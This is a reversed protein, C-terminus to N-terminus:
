RGRRPKETAPRKAKRLVLTQSYTRAKSGHTRLLITMTVRLTKVHKLDRRGVKTLPIRLTRTTDAPLSFALRGLTPGSARASRGSAHLAAAKGGTPKLVITGTCRARCKLITIASTGQVVAYSPLLVPLSNTTECNSSCASSPGGGGSPAPTAGGGGAVGGPGPRGEGLVTDASVEAVSTSGDAQFIAYSPGGLGGGGGSGAGGAGGAGGNGGAGIEESAYSDGKGGAGGAGGNGGTGGNGGAGGEGPTITSGLEVAVSSAGDLYIGFSGGGGQGGTGGGGGAGGAGGGGGGDGGGEVVGTDEGSGGGGGGGGGGPLGAAGPSAAGPEYSAGATAASSPENAGTSSNAAGAAGATGPAGDGGGHACCGTSRYAGPKGGAGGNAESATSRPLFGKSGPEGEYTSEALFIEGPGAKGASDTEGCQAQYEPSGASPSCTYKAAPGYIGNQDYSPTSRDHGTGGFGGDGPSAETPNAAPPRSVGDYFGGIYQEVLTANRNGNPAVGGAGGPGASSAGFHELANGPTEGREGAGGSGGAAGETGKVGNAGAEGYGARIAVDALTASSDELMRVGYASGGPGSARDSEIQLQQLLINRSGDLLIGQTEGLIVTPQAPEAVPTWNSADLDGYIAIDELRGLTVNGGYEGEGLLIQSVPQAGREHEHESAISVARSLTGIPEGPSTGANGDNGIESSVYLRLTGAPPSPPGLAVLATAEESKGVDAIVCPNAATGKCPGSAWEHLQVSATQQVALEVTDGETVECSGKSCSSSPNSDTASVSLEAPDSVGAIKYRPGFDATVTHGESVNPLQCPSQQTLCAAGSWGKFGYGSSAIAELTVEAGRGVTCQAGSCVTHFSATSSATARVTGDASPSSSASVVFSNGPESAAWEYAGSACPENRLYGRQDVAACHSGAAIAHSLGELEVTPTAGGNAALQPQGGTEVLFPNTSQKDGTAELACSADDAVNGGQSTPAMGACDGGTNDALIDNTLTSVGVSGGELSALGGGGNAGASDGAVTSSELTLTTGDFIGGGQRDSGGTVSNGVVTSNVITMSRSAGGANDSAVGGGVGIGGTVTNSAITSDEVTLQGDDQVGGGSSAATNATIVDEDLTLEGNQEVLIGGGEGEVSSNAGTGDGGTIEVRKLEVAGSTGGNGDTFVRSKGDATIVVGSAYGGAGVLTTTHEETSLFPHLVQLPGDTLTYTGRPLEITSEVAGFSLEEELQADEVAQRLACPSTCPSSATTDAIRPDVVYTKALAAPAMLAAIACTLVLAATGALDRRRM